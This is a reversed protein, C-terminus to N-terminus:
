AALKMLTKYRNRISVETIGAAEAIAAQTVKILEPEISVIPQPDPRGPKTRETM